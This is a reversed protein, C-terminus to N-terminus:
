TALEPVSFKGGPTGVCFMITAILPSAMLSGSSSKRTVKLLGILAVSVTVKIAWRLAAGGRAGPTPERAVENM